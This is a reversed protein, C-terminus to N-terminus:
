YKVMELNLRGENTYTYGGQVHFGQEELGSMVEFQSTHQMFTTSFFRRGSDQIQQDTMEVLEGADNRVKPPSLADCRLHNPLCENLSSMRMMDEVIIDYNGEGNRKIAVDYQGPVKLVVDARIKNGCWGRADANQVVDFGLAEGAKIASEASVINSRGCKTFHSM